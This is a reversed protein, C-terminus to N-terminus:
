RQIGLTAALMLASPMYFRELDEEGAVESPEPPLEFDGTIASFSARLGGTWRWRAQGLALGAGAALLPGAHRALREGAHDHLVSLEAGLALEGWPHVRPREAFGARLSLDAWAQDLRGLDTRGSRGGLDLLLWRASMGLRPGIGLRGGLSLPLAHPVDEGSYRAVPTHLTPAEVALTGLLEARASAALVLLAALLQPM